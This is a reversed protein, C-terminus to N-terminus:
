PESETLPKPLLKSVHLPIQGVKVGQLVSNTFIFKRADAAHREADVKDSEEGSVMSNGALSTHYAALNAVLASFDSFAPDNLWDKIRKAQDEPLPNQPSYIM